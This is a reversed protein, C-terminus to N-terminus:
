LISSHFFSLIFPHFPLLIFPHFCSLIFALFSSLIFPHFSSLIFFHFYSLIFSHFSLLIFTHKMDLKCSLLSSYHVRLVMYGPPTPTLSFNGIFRLDQMDGYEYYGLTHPTSSFPTQCLTPIPHYPNPHPSFLNVEHWLIQESWLNYLWLYM